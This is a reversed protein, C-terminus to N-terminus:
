RGEKQCNQEAAEWSIEPFTTKKYCFEKHMEFGNPCKIDPNIMSYPMAEYSMEFTATINAGLINAFPLHTPPDKLSVKQRCHGTILREIVLHNTEAILFIPANYYGCYEAIIKHPYESADYVIIKEQNCSCLDLHHFTLKIGDIGPLTLIFKCSDSANVGAGITGRTSSLFIHYCYGFHSQEEVLSFGYGSGDHEENSFLLLKATPYWFRTFLFVTNQLLDETGCIPGLLKDERMGARIELFDDECDISWELKLRNFRYFKRGDFVKGIRANRTYSIFTGNPEWIDTCKITCITCILVCHFLFSSLNRFM